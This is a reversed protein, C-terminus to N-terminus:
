GAAAPFKQFRWGAPTSATITIRSLAWPHAEVNELRFRRIVQTGKGAVRVSALQRRVMPGPRDDANDTHVFSWRVIKRSGLDFLCDVTLPKLEPTEDLLCLGLGSDIFESRWGASLSDKCSSHHPPDNKSDEQDSHKREQIPMFGPGFLLPQSECDHGDDRKREHRKQSARHDSTKISRRMAGTV